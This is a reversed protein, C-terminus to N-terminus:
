NKSGPESHRETLKPFMFESVIKLISGKNQLQRSFISIVAWKEQMVMVKHTLMLSEQIIGRQYILPFDRIQYETTQFDTTQHRPYSQFM